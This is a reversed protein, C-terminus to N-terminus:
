FNGQKCFRRKLNRQHSTLMHQASNNFLLIENHWDQTKLHLLMSTSLACVSWFVPPLSLVIDTWLWVYIFKPRGKRQLCLNKECVIYQTSEKVTIAIFYFFAWLHSIFHATRTCTYASWYMSLYLFYLHSPPLDQQSSIIFIPWMNLMQCALNVKLGHSQQQQRLVVWVLDQHAETEMCTQM